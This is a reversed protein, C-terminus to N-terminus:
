VPLYPSIPLLNYQLGACRTCLCSFLFWSFRSTICAPIVRSTEFHGPIARTQPFIVRGQTNCTERGRNSHIHWLSGEGRARPSDMLKALDLGVDHAISRPRTQTSLTCCWAALCAWVWCFGFPSTPTAQKTSSPRLLSLASSARLRAWLTSYHSSAIILSVVQLLSVSLNESCSRGRLDDDGCLVWIRRDPFQIRIRALVGMRRDTRDKVHRGVTTSVLPRLTPEM